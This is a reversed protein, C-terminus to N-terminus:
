VRWRSREVLAVPPGGVITEDDGVMFDDAPEAVLDFSGEAEIPLESELVVDPGRRPCGTCLRYGNLGDDAFVVVM